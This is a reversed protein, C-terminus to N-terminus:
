LHRRSHRSHRHRTKRAKRTSRRHRRKGGKAIYLGEVANIDSEPVYVTVDGQTFKYFQENFSVKEVAYEGSLHYKHSKLRETLPNDNQM